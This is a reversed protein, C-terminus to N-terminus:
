PCSFLGGFHKVIEPPFPLKIKQIFMSSIHASGSPAGGTTLHSNNRCLVLFARNKWNCIPFDVPHYQILQCVAM